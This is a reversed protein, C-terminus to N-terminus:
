RRRAAGRPAPEQQQPQSYQPAYGQPAKPHMYNQPAMQGHPMPQQQPNNYQGSPMQGGNQVIVSSGPVAQGMPVAAKRGRSQQAAMRAADM